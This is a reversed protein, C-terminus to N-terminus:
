AIDTVSRPWSARTIMQQWAYMTEVDADLFTLGVGENSSHVVMAPWSYRRFIKHRRSLELEFEMALLANKKYHESVKKIFVGGAGVNSTKCHLTTSQQHDCLLIDIAISQRTTCRHEM